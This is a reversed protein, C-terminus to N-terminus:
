SGTIQINLENYKEQIDKAMDEKSEYVEAGLDKLSRSLTERDIREQITEKTEDCILVYKSSKGIHDKADQYVRIAQAVSMTAVDIVQYNPDPMMGVSSLQQTEISVQHKKSDLRSVVGHVFSKSRASPTLIKVQINRM